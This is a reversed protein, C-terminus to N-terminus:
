SELGISGSGALTACADSGIGSATTRMQAAADDFAEFEFGSSEGLDKVAAIVKDLDDLLGAYDDTLSAPPELAALDDRVGTFVDAADAWFKSLDSIDLEVGDLKVKGASCIRNMEDVLEDHSLGSDVVISDAGFCSRSGLSDTLEDSAEQLSVLRDAAKSVADADDDEIAAALDALRDQQDGLNAVLDDFDAKADKAPRLKTLSVLTAQLADTADDYYHDDDADLDGLARDATRCAGNIETVLVDGSLVKPGDDGCATMVVLLTALISSAVRRTSHM